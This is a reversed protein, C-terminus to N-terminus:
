GFSMHADFNKVSYGFRFIINQSDVIRIRLCNAFKKM